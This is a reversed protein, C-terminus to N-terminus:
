YFFIIFKFVSCNKFLMFFNWSLWQNELIRLFLWLFWSLQFKCTAFFISEKKLQSYFWHLSFLKLTICSACTDCLAYLQSSFCFKKLAMVCVIRCSFIDFAYVFLFFMQLFIFYSFYYSEISVFQSLFYLIMSVKHEHM